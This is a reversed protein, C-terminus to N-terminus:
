TALSLGHKALADKIEKVTVSSIRRLNLLEKETRSCLDEVSNVGNRKTLANFSIKLLGLDAIMLASVCSPKKTPPNFLKTEGAQEIPPLKDTASSATIDGALVLWPNTGNESVSVGLNAWDLMASDDSPRKRKGM